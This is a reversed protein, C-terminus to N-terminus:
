LGDLVVKSKGHNLELLVQTVTLVIPGLLIGSPGFLLMGGVVSIFVAVTHIQLQKDV